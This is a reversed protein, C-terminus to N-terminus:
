KSSFKLYFTEIDGQFLENEVAYYIGESATDGQTYRVTLYNGVLMTYLAQTDLSKMEVSFDQSGTNDSGSATFEHDDMIDYFAKIDSQESLTVSTNERNDTITIYEAQEPSPVFIDRFTYTVVETDQTGLASSVKQEEGTIGESSISMDNSDSAATTGNAGTDSETADNAIAGTASDAANDKALAGLAGDAAGYPEATLSYNAASESSAIEAEGVAATDATPAEDTNMDSKATTDTSESAEEKSMLNYEQTASDAASKMGVPFQRIAAYGTVVLIVAACAAAFGRIHRNWPIIKSGPQKVSIKDSNDTSGPSQEKIADLTRLILDESVSIRSLELSNNLHAKINLDDIEINLQDDNKNYSM